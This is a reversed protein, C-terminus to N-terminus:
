ALAVRFGSLIAEDPLESLRRGAGGAFVRVDVEREGCHSTDELQRGSRRQHEERDSPANAPNSMRDLLVRSSLQNAWAGLVDANRRHPRLLSPCISLFALPGRDPSVILWRELNGRRKRADAHGVMWSSGDVLDTELSPQLRM